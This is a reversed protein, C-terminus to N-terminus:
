KVMLSEATKGAALAEKFWNPRKGHGSWTRGSADQFKPPLPMKKASAAPRSRTKGVVSKGATGVGFIDGNTLGYHAVAEKIRAIVDGKERSKVREVEKQLKAIQKHLQTLSTAMDNSPEIFPCLQVPKGIRTVPTTRTTMTEDAQRRPEHQRESRFRKREGAHVKRTRSGSVPLGFAAVFASGILRM